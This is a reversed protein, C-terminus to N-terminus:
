KILTLSAPGKSIFWNCHVGEGKKKKKKQLNIQTYFIPRSSAIVYQTCIKVSYTTKTGSIKDEM